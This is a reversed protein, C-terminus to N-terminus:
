ENVMIMRAFELYDDRQFGNSEAMFSTFFAKTSELFERTVDDEPSFLAIRETAQSRIEEVETKTLANFYAEFRVFYKERPGFTPGLKLTM